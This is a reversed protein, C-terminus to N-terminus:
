LGLDLGFLDAAGEGAASRQPGSAGVLVADLPVSPRLELCELRYRALAVAAFPWYLGATIVTLLGVRVALKVFPWARIDTHFSLAPASTHRWIAVQLRAALVPWVVLYNWALVAYAVIWGGLLTHGALVIPVLAMGAPVMFAAGIGGAFLYAGYFDLRVPEFSFRLNGYRTRGQQWAKLGHHLWPWALTLTAGAAVALAPAGLPAALAAFLWLVIPPLAVRYAEGLTGEFGFRLGRWSTNALRFRLASLLLWPGAGALVVAAVLAANRSFRFGFSYLLFIALAIIRGRLIALPRGHYDLAHGLLRTNQCFWRARRVKGWASYIGLTLLTLLVNAAWIRFYEAGSGTFAPRCPEAPASADSGLPTPLPEGGPVNEIAALPLAAERDWPSATLALPESETYGTPARAPLPTDVQPGPRGRSRAM